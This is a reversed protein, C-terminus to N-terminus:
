ILIKIKKMMYFFMWTHFGTHLLLPQLKFKLLALTALVVSTPQYQPM